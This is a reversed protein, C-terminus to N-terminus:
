IVGCYYILELETLDSPRETLAINNSKVERDYACINRNTSINYIIKHIECIGVCLSATEM